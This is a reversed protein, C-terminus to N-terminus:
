KIRESLYNVMNKMIGLQYKELDSDSIKVKFLEEVQTIYNMFDLSDLISGGLLAMEENISITVGVNKLISALKEFIETKNM